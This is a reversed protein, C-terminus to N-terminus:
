PSAGFAGMVAYALFFAVGGGLVGGVHEFATQFAARHGRIEFTAMGGDDRKQVAVVFPLATKAAALDRELDALASTGAGGASPMGLTLRHMPLAFALPSVYGAVVVGARAFLADDKGAPPKVALLRKATETCAADDPGDLVWTTAGDPVFLTPETVVNTRDDLFFSGKPLALAGPAARTAWKPPLKKTTAGHPVGGDEAVRAAALDKVLREAAAIDMTVGVVVDAELARELERPAKDPDKGSRVAAIAARVRETRLGYGAVVPHAFSKGLAATRLPL